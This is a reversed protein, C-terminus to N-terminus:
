DQAAQLGVTVCDLNVNVLQSQDSICTFLHELVLLAQHSLFYVKIRRLGELSAQKFTSILIGICICKLLWVIDFSSLLFPQCTASSLCLSEDTM